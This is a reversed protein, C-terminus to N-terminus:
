ELNSSCRRSTNSIGLERYTYSFLATEVDAPLWFGNTRLGSQVYQKPHPCEIKTENLVQAFYNLILIWTGYEKPWGSQSKPISPGWESWSVKLNLLQYQQAEKGFTLVLRTDLAGFKQPIAFHLLKSCYTPGLGVIQEDLKTIAEEPAEVVWQAPLNNEYLNTKNPDAWFINNKNRFRGWDAILILHDRSLSQERAAKSIVKELNFLEPFGKEWTDKKRSNPPWVYSRYLEPLDQEQLFKGVTNKKSTTISM